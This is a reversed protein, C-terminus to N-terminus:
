PIKETGEKHLGKLKTKKEKKARKKKKKKQCTLTM